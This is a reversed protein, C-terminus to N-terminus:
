SSHIGSEDVVEDEAPECAGNGLQHSNKSDGGDGTGRAVPIGRPMTTLAKIPVATLEREAILLRRGVERLLKSVEENPRLPQGHEMAGYVVKNTQDGQTQVLANPVTRNPEIQETRNPETPSSDQTAYVTRLKASVFGHSPIVHGHRRNKNHQCSDRTM